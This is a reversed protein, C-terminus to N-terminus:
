MPSRKPRQSSLRPSALSNDTQPIKIRMFPRIDELFPAIDTQFLQWTFAAQRFTGPKHPYIGGGWRERLWELVQLDTNTVIVQTRVHGDRGRTLNVCGEGDFFGSAWIRDTLDPKTRGSSPGFPSQGGSAIEVM